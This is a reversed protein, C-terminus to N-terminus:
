VLKNKIHQKIMRVKECRYGLIYTKYYGIILLFTKINALYTLFSIKISILKRIFIIIFCMYIYTLCVTVETICLSNCYGSCM